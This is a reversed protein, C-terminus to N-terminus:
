RWPIQAEPGPAQQAQTMPPVPGRPAEKVFFHVAAFFVVTALIMRFGSNWIDLMVPRRKFDKSGYRYLADSTGLQNM